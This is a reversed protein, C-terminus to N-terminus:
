GITLHRTRREESIGNNRVNSSPQAMLGLCAAFVAAIAATRLPYDVASHALIAASAITAAKAFRSSLPSQWVRYTQRIWWALFLALLLLGLLGAELLLELYDNHAHNIYTRDIILPDENLAYVQQFSGLGTGVPFTEAITSGTSKWIEQRSQVSASAFGSSLDAHIPSTTLAGVAAVLAVATASISLRRLKLGIPLLLASSAIVPLALVVAALSGNLMLGVIVVFFGGAGMALLAFAIGRAKVQSYGSAFMAVVFPITVLLLTGMHNRNAFFGVAGTNTIEYLYWSSQTPNGGLTQLAGLLVGLFSAFLIASALWSDKCARVVIIGVLVGLPPLTAWAAALTDYPAVSIPLWPLQQGLSLYGAELVERGPLKTWVEPPLPILQLVILSLWLVVLGLLSKAFSTLPEASRWLAAWSILAIAIIQLVMNGWIAQASGGLLLCLLLYGPVILRRLREKM